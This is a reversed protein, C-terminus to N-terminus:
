QIELTRAYIRPVDDRGDTWAAVFTNGYSALTIYDGFNRQIPAFQKDGPVKTWDSSVINM